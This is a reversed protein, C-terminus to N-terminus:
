ICFEGKETKTCSRNLDAYKLSNFSTFHLSWYLLTLTLSDIGSEPKCKSYNLRRRRLKWKAFNAYCTKLLQRAVPDRQWHTKKKRTQHRSPGPRLRKRQMRGAFRTLHWRSVLWVLHSTYVDGTPADSYRQHLAKPVPSIEKGRHKCDVCVNTAPRLKLWIHGPSSAPGRLCRPTWLQGSLANEVATSFFFCLYCCTTLTLLPTTTTIPAINKLFFDM